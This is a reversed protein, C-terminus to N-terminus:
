QQSRNPTENEPVIELGTAYDVDRIPSRSRLANTIQDDQEYLAKTLIQRMELGEEGPFEAVIRALYIHIQNQLHARLRLIKDFGAGERNSELVSLLSRHAEEVVEINSRQRLQDIATQHEERLVEIQKLVYNAQDLEPMNSVALPGDPFLVEVIEDIARQEEPLDRLSRLSELQGDFGSLRSDALENALHLSQMYESRGQQAEYWEREADYAAQAAKRVTELQESVLYQSQKQGAEKKFETELKHLQELCEKEKAKNKGEESCIRERSKQLTEEEEATSRYNEFDKGVRSITENMALLARGPPISHLTFMGETLAFAKEADHSKYEFARRESADLAMVKLQDFAKQNVAVQDPYSPKDDDQEHLYKNAKSNGTEALATVAALSMTRIIDRRSVASIPWTATLKELNQPDTSEILYDLAALASSPEKNLRVMTAFSKYVQEAIHLDESMVLGNGSKEMFARLRAYVETSGTTEEEMKKRKKNTSVDVKKTKPADGIYGAAMIAASWCVKQESDNLVAWISPLAKRTMREAFAPTMERHTSCAFHDYKSSDKVQNSGCGSGLLLTACLVALKFFSPKKKRTAM